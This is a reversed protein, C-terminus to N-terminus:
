TCAWASCLWINYFAAQLAPDCLKLFYLNVLIVSRLLFVIVLYFCNLCQSHYVLHEAIASLGRWPHM